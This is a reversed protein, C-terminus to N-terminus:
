IKLRTKFGKKGRRNILASFFFLARFKSNSLPYFFYKNKNVFFRLIIRLYYLTLYSFFKYFPIKWPYSINRRLYFRKGACNKGGINTRFKELWVSQFKNIAGEGGFMVFYVHSRKILIKNPSFFFIREVIIYFMDTEIFYAFCYRYVIRPFIYFKWNQYRIKRIKWRFQVFSLPSFSSCPQYDVHWDTKLRKCRDTLLPFFKSDSATDDFFSENRSDEGM